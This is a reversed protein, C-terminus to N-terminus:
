SSLGYARLQYLQTPRVSKSGECNEYVDDREDHSSDPSALDAAIDPHSVHLSELPNRSRDAVFLVVHVRGGVGDNTGVRRTAVGVVADGGNRRLGLRVVLLGVIILVTSPGRDLITYEERKTRDGSTFMTGLYAGLDSDTKDRDIYIIQREKPFFFCCNPHVHSSPRPCASPNSYGWRHHAGLNTSQGSRTTTGFHHCAGLGADVVMWCGEGHVTEEGRKCIGETGGYVLDLHADAKM